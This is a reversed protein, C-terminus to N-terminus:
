PRHRAHPCGTRLRKAHNCNHCLVQYGPPFGQKKLWVYFKGGVAHIGDRERIQRREDAGNDLIHDIVLFDEETEECCVCRSGGYAAFTAARLRRRSEEM